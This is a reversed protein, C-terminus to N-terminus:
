KGRQLAAAYNFQFFYNSWAQDTTNYENDYVFHDILAERSRVLERLKKKNKPDRITLDLLELARFFAQQSAQANGKNKWRITRDIDAGVNGLQEYM